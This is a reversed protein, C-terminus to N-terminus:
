TLTLKKKKGEKRHQQNKVSPFSHVFLSALINNRCADNREEEIPRQFEVRRRGVRANRDGIGMDREM